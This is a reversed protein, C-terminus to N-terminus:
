GRAVERLLLFPADPERTVVTAGANAERKPAEQYGLAARWRHHRERAGPHDLDRLLVRECLALARPLDGGKAFLDARMMLAPSSTAHELLRLASDPEGRDVLASAVAVAFPEPLPREKHRRALEDVARGENPSARLIRFLALADEVSPGAATGVELLRAVDEPV